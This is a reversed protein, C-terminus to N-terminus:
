GLLAAVRALLDTKSFPKDLSACHSGRLFESADPSLTDGTVFLMHHALLPHRACVERWLAAGDMDPMRLDSVIADFRAADLMALALKGSEATAVEHGARELMSRMLDAAARAIENLDVPGHQSPRSRAMNLFTRVIRGCGEAAERIRQADAKLDPLGECKEELLSARGMVIALPNHLDHAVSALLGGMVGLKESQRLAERQRDIQAAADATPPM